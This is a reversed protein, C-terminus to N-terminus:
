IFKYLENEERQMRTEIKQFIKETDSKISEASQLLKPNTNYKDKYKVFEDALDGMERQYSNAMKKVDANGKEILGPYLYKDEMSLHVKIKGALTSIHLAIDRGNKEYNGSGILSKIIKIEEKVAEHQDLYSKLNM